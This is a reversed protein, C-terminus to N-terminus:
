LQNYWITGGGSGSSSSIVFDEGMGCTLPLQIFDQDQAGSQLFQMPGSLPTSGSKYILTTGSSMSLIFFLQLVKIRMGFLGPIVVNEGIGFTLPAQITIPGLTADRIM